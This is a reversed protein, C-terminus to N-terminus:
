RGRVQESMLKLESPGPLICAMELGHGLFSSLCGAVLVGFPDCQYSNHRQLGVPGLDVAAIYCPVPNSLIRM